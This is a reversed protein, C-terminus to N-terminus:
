VTHYFAGPLDLLLPVLNLLILAIEAVQLIPPRSQTLGEIKQAIKLAEMQM